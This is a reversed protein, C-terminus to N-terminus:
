SVHGNKIIKFWVLATFWFISLILLGKLLFGDSVIDCVKQHTQTYRLFSHLLREKKKQTYRLSSRLPWALKNANRHRAFLKAIAM